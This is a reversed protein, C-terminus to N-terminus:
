IHESNGGTLWGLFVLILHGNPHSFPKLVPYSKGMWTSLFYVTLPFGCMETFLAVIFGIFAGISRWEFKKKPKIFSIAFFLFLSVNFFVVPWM